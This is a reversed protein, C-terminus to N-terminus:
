RLFESDCGHNICGYGLEGDASSLYGFALGGRAWWVLRVVYLQVFNNKFNHSNEAVQRIM